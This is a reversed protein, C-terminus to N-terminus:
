IYSCSHMFPNSQTLRLLRFTENYQNNAFETRYKQKNIYTNIIVSSLPPRVRLPQGKLSDGYQM